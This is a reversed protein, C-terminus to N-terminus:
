LLYYFARYDRVCSLNRSEEFSYRNKVTNERLMNVGSSIVLKPYTWM